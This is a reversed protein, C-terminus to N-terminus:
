RAEAGAGAPSATAAEAAEGQSLLRMLGSPAGGADVARATVVTRPLLEALEREIRRCDPAAGTVGPARELVLEVTRVSTAERTAEGRLPLRAHPALWWARVAPHSPAIRSVAALLDLITPLRMVFSGIGSFHREDRSDLPVM